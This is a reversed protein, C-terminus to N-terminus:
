EGLKGLQVIAQRWENRKWEPAKESPGFLSLRVKFGALRLISRRVENTYDGFMLRILLPHTGSFVIVRASKNMMTGKWLNLHNEWGTKYLNFCSDSLWIRDFIGKLSAPMSCWWNPYVLVFHDCWLIDEQLKKLDPELQQIVKYGNHLVPDFHIQGLHTRRVEHGAQKAAEEYLLAFQSSLTSDSDPHGILITIKKQVQDSFFKM